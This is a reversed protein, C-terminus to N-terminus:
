LERVVRSPVYAYPIEAEECLVPLHSIVDIPSIDGAFICVSFILVCVFIGSSSSALRVEDETSKKSYGGRLRVIQDRVGLHRGIM